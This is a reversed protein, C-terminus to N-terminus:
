EPFPMGDPQVKGKTKSKFIEGNLDKQKEYDPSCAYRSWDAILEKKTKQEPM